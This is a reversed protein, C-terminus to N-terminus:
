ARVTAKSSEMMRYWRIFSSFTFQTGPVSWAPIAVWASKSLSNCRLPSRLSSMPRSIYTSMTPSSRSREAYNASHLSFCRSRMRSCNCEIPPKSFQDSSTLTRWRMWGLVVRQVRFAARSHRLCEYVQKAASEDVAPLLHKVVTRRQLRHHAVHLHVPLVDGASLFERQGRPLRHLHPHNVVDFVGQHTVLVFNGVIEDAHGRRTGLRNEAVHRNRHITMIGVVHYNKRGRNVWRNRGPCTRFGRVPRGNGRRTSSVSTCM